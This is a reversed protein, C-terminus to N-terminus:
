KSRSSAAVLELLEQAHELASQSGDQGSLMRAIETTREKSDLVSVDTNSVSGSETKRVVLHHDGWVAVQPLHTVVIVQAVKSLAALRRGVEVAAKGGVGADVEDFIYTPLPTSSALVVEIALMVRSLEGGSASKGLPLLNAGEHSAFKIAVDDIGFSGYAKSNEFDPESLEIVVRSHPMSLASLEATIAQSIESGAVERKSHLNKAASKLSSFVKVLQAELEKVRDEGGELDAIRSDISEGREILELFAAERDSGVGFKKILSNIAAKRNQLADLKAPDADLASLYRMLNAISDNVLFVQDAFTGAIEELGSDKEAVSQLSKLASSLATTVTFEDGELLNLATSVAQQLDEISELRSLENEIKVLDDPVPRVQQYAAAFEKLKELEQAFSAADRKLAAIRDELAKFEEYNEQYDALEREIKGFRDLAERIFAPKSLRQTGAQAHIEVLKEAIEAVKSNTSPVGGLTIRSKGDKAVTRTVLVTGAEVVGGVEEIEDVLENPVGFLGAAMLRDEGTRIRDVDAKGGLILGLATLVMTKGAGTEGTLVNFGPSLPVQASEIVGLNRISLEQLGLFEESV